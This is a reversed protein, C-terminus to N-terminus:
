PHQENVLKIFYKGREIYNAFLDFSAGAPSFLVIEQPRIQKCCQAFAEDLTTHATSAIGAKTCLAHLEQAEKGFCYVHHVKNHLQEILPTRDIGKSVGGLFLHLPKTYLRNVAALTADPTTSKSDNYFETGNITAIKQLRHEPLELSDATQPIINLPINLIHLAACIALWNQAFSVNPILSRDILKHHTQTDFFMVADHTLYFLNHKLTDFIETSPTEDVFFSLTGHVPHTTTFANHLTLPVIAHQHSKQQAMIRYKADFYEQANSHRDLHNPAFNTWIAIDPAFTTSLELQFSSLELVALQAQTESLMDFLGVGINGGISAQTGYANILQGLIQTTSTKGVTGTIAVIPKNWHAYFFDLEPLWKHKYAQYNRLDIGSSPIIVDNRDLFATLSDSQRYFPISKNALLTQDQASLEKNDIVELHAGQAHLYNLASKGLVGLGWIGIKKTRIHM